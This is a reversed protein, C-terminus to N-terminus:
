QLKNLRISVARKHGVLSEAEAMVEVIPGLKALGSKTLEQFTIKKVFSDLSVGSYSRAWGATPLTHNTGSAYDGISEPSYNGLFVSGANIVKGSWVRPDRLSLILHEPAYDNSFAMCEEMDDFYIIMSKDIAAQDQLAVKTKEILPLYNTVLVVQSDAGHEAQSIMDAAVFDPDATDDALILVESPGAPMDIAVGLRQAAVKAETVFHNGPGFIKEVKPISETGLAMAAIAQAGGVMYIKHVGTISAAFLVAPNVKGDSQPPTCLIVQRCGAIQAPIALMLVTSFLPASGGPIYLGVRDIPRSERWCNVGPMTECVRESSVQGVHFKRINEAAQRIAKNLSDGIESEAKEIEISEVELHDLSVKDFRKTFEFLAADRDTDVAQIIAEVKSILGQTEPLPRQM